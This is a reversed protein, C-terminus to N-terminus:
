DALYQQYLWLSDAFRDDLTPAQLVLVFRYYDECPFATLLCYGAPGEYGTKLGLCDPVYYASDKQLLANTNVWTHKEGSEFTVTAKSQGCIERILPQEMALSAIQLLDYATTYHDSRHIGDPNAFHTGTLGLAQVQANVEEMFRNIAAQPALNENKALARGAAAALAYAADNGSPLLMGQVLMKVTLRNGQQLGAVSSEPHIFGVEQGVTVVTEPDMLQMAVWATFLKTLSAPYVRDYANGQEYLLWDAEPDYVFAYKAQPRVVPQTPAATSPASVAPETTPVTTPVTSPITAPTTTPATTSQTTAAGSSVTTQTGTSQAASTTEEPQAAGAPNRGETLLLLGCVVILVLLFGAMLRKEM